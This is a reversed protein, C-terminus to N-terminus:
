NLFPIPPIVAAVHSKMKKILNDKFALARGLLREMLFGPIFFLVSGCALMFVGLEVNGQEVSRIGMFFMPGATSAGAAAQAMRFLGFQIM